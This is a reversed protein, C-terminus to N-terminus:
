SSAVLRTMKARYNKFAFFAGDSDVPKPLKMVANMRSYTTGGLTTNITVKGSWDGGCYTTRLYALQARTMVQFEWYLWAFGVYLITGDGRDRETGPDYLGSARPSFFPQDGSPVITEVNVLSGSAVNYGSAIKYQQLPNFTRTM